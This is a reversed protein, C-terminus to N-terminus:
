FNLLVLVAENRSDLASLIDNQARLLATETSHLPRYASQMPVHLHNEALYGQLQNVVVREIM